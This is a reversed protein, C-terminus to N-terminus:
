GNAGAKGNLLLAGNELDFYKGAGPSLGYPDFPKENWLLGTVAVAGPVALVVEFIRSRFLPMGIGIREPALLGTTTDMLATRVAALVDAELRRPDIEIAISLKPLDAPQAPLVLLPQAPVHVPEAPAAEIPTAPDTLSRVRQSVKSALTKDGIYWIQVVPRQREQNWLWEARVARVGGVTAAAVEMDQISVARGLLLASRPAYTRLGSASEADDGGSAAVPNRISKVGKIAKGLQHISGAPPIAKGAGFRYSAVINNFGTIPRSGRVGDGFTITSEGDDDQRVIYVEATSAVGFFSRVETWRVGSVYVKLTSAVGSDNGATPSQTYTLPKKKLKFSQNPISADGSGLIESPVTEGRSARLVNGYMAVPAALSQPLTSTQDLTVIGTTFNIAGTIEAGLNNKDELLFHNGSRGDQPQEFPAALPLQGGQKLPGITTLAPAVVTGANIFGFHVTIDKLDAEVLKNATVTRHDSDNIAGDLTIKTIPVPPPNTTTTVTGGVDKGGVTGTTSTTVTVASLIGEDDAVSEVTFWQLIGGKELVVAGEPKLQRYLADLRFNRDLEPTISIQSFSVTSSSAAVPAKSALNSTPATQSSTQERWLLATQTPTTLKIQDLPTNRAITIPDDWEIKKYTVGDSARYNSVSKVVRAQTTPPDDAVELLFIQDQKLKASSPALLLSSLAAVTPDLLASFGEFLFSRSSTFLQSLRAASPPPSTSAVAVSVTRQPGDITTPRAPVVKWKNLFPHARTEEDLEFVQPASGPFAGSRFSAGAPITIPQRGDAFVALDVTAASAPRPIYGLLGVLKRLSPRLQATRLYSENAILEDYFSISDCVYAWMELLMVGFDDSSRARWDALAPQEGISSLMATRFEHFTAIQRPLSELGAPIILPPPFVIEDCPCNFNM